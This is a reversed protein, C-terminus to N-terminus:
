LFLLRTSASKISTHHKKSCIRVFATCLGACFRAVVYWWFVIFVGEAAPEAERHRPRTQNLGHLLLLGKGTYRPNGGHTCGHNQRAKRIRTPGAARRTRIRRGACGYLICIGCEDPRHQEPLSRRIASGAYQDRFHIRRLHGTGKQDLQRERDPIPANRHHKRNSCGARTGPHADTRCALFNRQRRRGYM